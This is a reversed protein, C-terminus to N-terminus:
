HTLLGVGRQVGHFYQCLLIDDLPFLNFMRPRLPAHKSFEVMGEDHFQVVGELHTHM